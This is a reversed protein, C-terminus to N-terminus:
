AAVLEYIVHIGCAGAGAGTTVSLGEGGNTEFLGARQEGSGGSQVAVGAVLGFTASIASGAGGPKTNFVVSAPPTTAAPSLILGVVRVKKGAVAAVVSADTTAGVPNAFDALRGPGARRPM